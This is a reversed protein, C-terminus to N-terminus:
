RPSKPANKTWATACDWRRFQRDGGLQRRKRGPISQSARTCRHRPRHRLALDAGIKRRLGRSLPRSPRHRIRAAPARHLADVPLYAQRHRRGRRVCQAHQRHAGVPLPVQRGADPSHRRGLHRPRSKADAARRAARGPVLTSDPSLGSVSSTTTLLGTRADIAFTVIEATM